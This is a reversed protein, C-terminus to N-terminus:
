YRDEGGEIGGHWHGGVSIFSIDGRAMRGWGCGVSHGVQERGMGRRGGADGVMIRGL